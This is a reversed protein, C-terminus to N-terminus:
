ASQCNLIKFNSHMCAALLLSQDAPHWKLRWVGGGVPTHGFPKKMNRSDWLLVQEDYSGTALVHERHPSSHISCVGMTHRQFFAFVDMLSNHSSSLVSTDATNGSYILQTDWYSFASIWAEFDHAKWQSLPSLTGQNESLRYLHLEGTA